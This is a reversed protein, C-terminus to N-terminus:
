DLPGGFGYWNVGEHLWLGVSQGRAWAGGLTSTPSGNIAGATTPM